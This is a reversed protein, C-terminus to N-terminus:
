CHTTTIAAQDEILLHPHQTGQRSISIKKGDRLYAIHPFGSSESTYTISPLKLAECWADWALQVHLDKYQGPWPTTPSPPNPWRDISREYPSASIWAEFTSRTHNM